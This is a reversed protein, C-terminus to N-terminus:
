NFFKNGSYNIIDDFSNCEFLKLHKEFATAYGRDITVDVNINSESSIGMLYEEKFLPTNLVDGEDMRWVDGLTIGTIIGNVASRNLNFDESYVVKENKFFEIESYEYEVETGYLITKGTLGDIINYTEEYFIGTDEMRTQYTSDYSAGLVYRFIIKGEENRNIEIITDGIFEDNSSDKNFVVNEKYPIDLTISSISQNILNEVDTSKVIGPLINGNDDMTNNGYRLTQLKSEVEFSIGSNTFTPELTYGSLESDITDVAYKTSSSYTFDKYEDDYPTYEEDYPTLIGVDDIECNILIPVSVYPVLPEELDITEGSNDKIILGDVLKVLEIGGLENFRDFESIGILYDTDCEESYSYVGNRIFELKFYDVVTSNKIFEYTSVDDFVDFFIKSNEPNCNKDNLRQLHTGNRLINLLVNYRQMLSCTRIYCDEVTISSTLSTIASFLTCGSGIDYVFGGFNTKGSYNCPIYPLGGTVHSKCDYLSIKKRIVEM